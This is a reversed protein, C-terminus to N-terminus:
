AASRRTSGSPTDGIVQREFERRIADSDMLSRIRGIRITEEFFADGRRQMEELMVRLRSMRPELDRLM